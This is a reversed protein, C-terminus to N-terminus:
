SNLFKKYAIKDRAEHILEPCALRSLRELDAGFTAFNELFKQRRNVFQIYYTQTLKKGEGFRLELKSKLESFKLNAVGSTVGDLVSRAKRRLYSALVVSKIGM